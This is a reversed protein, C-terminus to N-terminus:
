KSSNIINQNRGERERQRRRYPGAEDILILVFILDSEFESCTMGFPNQIDTCFTVNKHM